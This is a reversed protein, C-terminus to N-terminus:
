NGGNEGGSGAEPVFTGVDNPGNPVATYPGAVDHATHNPVVHKPRAIGLELICSNSYKGVDGLGFSYSFSRDEIEEDEDDEGLSLIM